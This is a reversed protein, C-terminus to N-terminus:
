ENQFLAYMKLLSVNREGGGGLLQKKRNNFLYILNRAAEMVM